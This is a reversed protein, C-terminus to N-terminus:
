LSTNTMANRKAILEEKFKGEAQSLVKETQIILTHNAPYIKKQIQYAKTYFSLAEEYMKRKHHYEAVAISSKATSAYEQHLNKEFIILAKQYFDINDSLQGLKM